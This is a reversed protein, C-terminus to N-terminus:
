LLFASTKATTFLESFLPIKSLILWIEEMNDTCERKGGNQALMESHLFGSYVQTWGRM